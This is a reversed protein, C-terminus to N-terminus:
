GGWLRRGAGLLARVPSALERELADVRRQLDSAQRDLHKNDSRLQEVRDLLGDRQAQLADVHRQLTDIHAQMALAVDASGQGTPVVRGHGEDGVKAPPSVQGALALVEAKSVMTPATPHPDRWTRLGRDRRWRRLTDVTRGVLRAAEAQSILDAPKHEDM